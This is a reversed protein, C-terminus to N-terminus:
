AADAPAFAREGAARALLFVERRREVVHRCLIRAQREPGRPKRESRPDRELGARGIRADGHEDADRRRDRALAVVERVRLAARLRLEEDLALGVVDARDLVHPLEVARQGLRLLEDHDVRRIVQEVPVRRFDALRDLIQQAVETPSAKMTEATRVAAPLAGFPASRKTRGSSSAAVTMRSASARTGATSAAAISSTIRPQAIGSASCPSFTARMALRRAPRGTVTDATVTLRKQEDPRCDIAVAASRIMSPKAVAITAPPASDM